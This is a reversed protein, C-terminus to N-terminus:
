ILPKCANLPNINEKFFCMLNMGGGESETLRTLHNLPPPTRESNIFVTYEETKGLYIRNM